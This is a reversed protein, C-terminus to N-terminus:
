LLLKKGYVTIYAEFSKYFKSFLVEVSILIIWIKFQNYLVVQIKLNQALCCYICVLYFSQVIFCFYSKFIHNVAISYLFYLCVCVCQRCATM